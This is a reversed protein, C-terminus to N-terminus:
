NSPLTVTISKVMRRLYGGRKIARTKKFSCDRQLIISYTAPSIILEIYGKRLILPNTMIRKEFFSTELQTDTLRYLNIDTKHIKRINPYTVYVNRKEKPNFIVV